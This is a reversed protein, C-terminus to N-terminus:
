LLPEVGLLSFYNGTVWSVLVREPRGRDPALGIFGVSYGAIDEFIDHAARYDQLDLFSLPGLTFTPSRDSAIVVLRSSDRVPLPRFIIANVVSFVAINAGIGLALTLVAICTFSPTNRFGRVAYRLDQLLMDMDSRWGYDVSRRAGYFSGTLRRSSQ